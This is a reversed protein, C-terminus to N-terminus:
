VRHSPYTINIRHNFPGTGWCTMTILLHQGLCLEIPKKGAPSRLAKAISIFMTLALVLTPMKCPMMECTGVSSM